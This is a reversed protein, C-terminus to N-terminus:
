EARQCVLVRAIGALDNAVRPERWGGELLSAVGPLSDFGLELALWGNPQLVRHAEPILRRYLDLGDLGAFLAGRPEWDLVERQSITGDRVYPPNSVVLDVSTTALASLLDCLILSVSLANLAKTNASAVALARESIDTSLVTAATELALTAAIAGSGCGVDVVIGSCFPLAAEILHETEPRPILVDPTVRFPRGFFEQIGTIYQTPKGDLRQHLYRGYHIWQLETLSQEPHAFLYSRECHLAHCLLVEATLRPSGIAAKRFLETGQGLAAGITLFNV